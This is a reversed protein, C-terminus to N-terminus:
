LWTETDGCRPAAPQSLEPLVHRPTDTGEQRPPTSDRSGRVNDPSRPLSDPHEKTM